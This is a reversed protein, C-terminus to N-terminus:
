TPRSRSAFYAASPRPQPFERLPVVEDVTWVLAPGISSSLGRSRLPSNSDTTTGLPVRRSPSNSSMTIESYAFPIVVRSMASCAQPLQQELDAHM